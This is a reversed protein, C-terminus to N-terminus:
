FIPKANVCNENYLSQVAETRLNARLTQNSHQNILTQDQSEKIDIVSTHSGGTLSFCDFPHGKLLDREQIVLAPESTKFFNFPMSQHVYGVCKERGEKKEKRKGISNATKTSSEAM